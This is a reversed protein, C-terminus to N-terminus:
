KALKQYAEQIEKFRREALTKFEEGLHQVKDPHYKGALKKYASKIEETTADRDVGLIEYPDQVNLGTDNVATKENKQYGSQFARFPWGKGRYFYRWLLYLIVFDDIWGWGIMFDPMVDYPLFAYILALLSLLIRM